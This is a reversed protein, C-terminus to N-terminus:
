HPSREGCAWCRDFTAPVPEGCRCHWDAAEPAPDLIQRLLARARDADRPDRLWLQPWADMALEGRGSWLDGGLVTAEIGHTALYARLIEADLPTAASHIPTMRANYLTAKTQCRVPHQRPQAM